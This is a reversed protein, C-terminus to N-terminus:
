EVIYERNWQKALRSYDSKTATVFTYALLICGILLTLTCMKKGKEVISIFNYYASKILRSHIFYFIFPFLIYILDVIKIKEYISGMVTETQGVTGLEGLSAFSYYFTYYISNIMEIVTFVLLIVFFYKFQNKPKALYGFSGLILVLALDVIFTKFSFMNGVTFNRILMLGIMSILVYTIFLRNTAVYQVVSKRARRLMISVKEKM